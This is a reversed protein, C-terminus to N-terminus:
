ILTQRKRFQATMNPGKRKQHLFRVRKSSLPRLSEIITMVGTINSDNHQM